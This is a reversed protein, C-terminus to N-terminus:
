GHIMGTTGDNRVSHLLRNFGTFFIDTSSKEIPFNPFQLYYKSM